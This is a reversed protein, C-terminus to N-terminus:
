PATQELLNRTVDTIHARMNAEAEAAKRGNIAEVIAEHQDAYHKRREDTLVERRLKGWSPQARMANFSDFISLLLLNGTSLCIARHFKWDWQEWTVSDTAARGKRVIATMEAIQFGKARLAALRAIQPELVMRTELMEVPSTNETILSLQPPPREPRAGAFTGKGVNRWILGEAELRALAKRLSMRSISMKAALDREPPLRDQPNIEGNLLMQRLADYAQEYSKM